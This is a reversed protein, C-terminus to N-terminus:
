GAILMRIFDIMVALARHEFDWMSFKISQGLTAAPNTSAAILSHVRVKARWNDNRHSDDVCRLFEDACKMPVHPLAAKIMAHELCGFSEDHPMVLFATGPSGDTLINPKQPVSFGCHEFCQQLHRTTVGADNEADRIVGLNRVTDFNRLTKFSNLWERFGQGGKCFDWLQVDDFEPSDSIRNLLTHFYDLGEVAIAIPKKIIQAEPASM